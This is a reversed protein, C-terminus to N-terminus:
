YMLIINITDKTLIVYNYVRINHTNFFYAVKIIYSYTNIM